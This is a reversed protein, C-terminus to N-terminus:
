CIGVFPKSVFMRTNWLRSCTQDQLSFVVKQELKSKNKLITETLFLVIMEVSKLWQKVM